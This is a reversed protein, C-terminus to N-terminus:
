IELQFHKELFVQLVTKVMKLLESLNMQDIEEAMDFCQKTLGKLFYYDTEISRYM